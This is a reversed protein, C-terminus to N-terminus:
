IAFRGRAARTHSTKTVAGAQAQTPSIRSDNPRARMSWACARRECRFTWDLMTTWRPDGAATPARGCPPNPDSRTRPPHDPSPDHRWRPAKGRSRPSARGEEGGDVLLDPHHFRRPPRGLLHQRFVLRLENFQSYVVVGEKCALIEPAARDPGVRAEACWLASDHWRPGM